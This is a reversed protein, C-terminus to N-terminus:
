EFGQKKQKLRFLRVVKRQKQQFCGEGNWAKSVKEPGNELGPVRGQAAFQKPKGKFVGNAQRGAEIFIAFM